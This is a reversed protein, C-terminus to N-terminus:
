DDRRRDLMPRAVAPAHIGELKEVPPAPPHSEIWDAPTEIENIELEASQKILAIAHKADRKYKYGESVAIVEVIGSDKAISVLRWRWEDRDDKFLEFM